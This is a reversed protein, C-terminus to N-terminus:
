RERPAIVIEGNFRRWRTITRPKRIGIHAKRLKRARAQDRRDAKTKIRHPAVLVPALNSERHEGGNCLAVIHDLEWRVGPLIKVGTIHCRGGRAEFVRLRVHDPVKTDDTKGIWEPVTRM